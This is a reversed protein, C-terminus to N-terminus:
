PSTESPPSSSEVPAEPARLRLDFRGNTIVLRFRADLAQLGARALLQEPIELGKSEVFGSRPIDSGPVFTLDLDVRNTKWRAYGAVRAEDNTTITLSLRSGIELAIQKVALQVNTATRALKFSAPDNLQPWTFDGSLEGRRWEVVGFNFEGSPTQITGNLFEARPCNTWLRDMGAQFSELTETIGFERESEFKTSKSGEPLILRWRNAQIFVSANTAEPERLRRRWAWPAIVTLEMARFSRGEGHYEVNELKLRDSGIWTVSKTAVGRGRLAWRAAAPFWARWTVAAAIGAVFAFVFAWGCIRKWGGKRVAWYLGAHRGYGFQARYAKFPRAKPGPIGHVGRAM